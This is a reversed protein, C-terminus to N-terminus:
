LEKKEPRKWGPITLQKARTLTLKKEPVDKSITSGAGITSGRGITLPAVLASNSGIFVENEIITQHKNVGDYNCTIVGAGINVSEGLTTDGIYSLHSVKSGRGITSKKVEVFNGIRGTDEIVTGPRIRAFPGVICDNGIVADEVVSNDKIKVNNGITVNRLIVNAGIECHEGIIVTGELLANVDFEVDRGVILEGRLDFRAADRITVGSTMLKKAQKRQYYREVVNLQWRDNVGQIEEADLCRVAVVPYNQKLALAPLDTLYYEQQANKNAVSPLLENFVSVPALMVGANIENVQKQKETADKEEVIAFFEKQETRLIRGLGTPNSVLATLIGVGELPTQKLMHQLTESSLCPVDGPLVLVRSNKDVNPLAQMVAHGTGLQELQETWSVDINLQEKVIHGGHGVIVHIKSPNLSKATLYIHELLSKNAVQHLVKPFASHMRTGQGAAMIVIELSM